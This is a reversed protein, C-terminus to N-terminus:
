VNHSMILKLTDIISLYQFSKVVEKLVYNKKNFCNEDIKKLPIQITDIYKLSKKSNKIQKDM